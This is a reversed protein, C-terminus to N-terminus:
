QKDLVPKLVQQVFERITGEQKIGLAVLKPDPVQRGDLLDFETAFDYIDDLAEVGSPPAREITIPKGIEHAIEGIVDNLSARAHAIDFDVNNIEALKEHYLKFLATVVPGLDHGIWTYGLVGKPTLPLKVVYKDGTKVIPMLKLFNELFFGAIVRSNPLGSAQLHKSVTVKDASRGQSLAFMGEFHTVKTYKGKSVEAVSVLSSFVFFKVGEEKAADVMNEGQVVESLPTFPITVGFAVEAGSLAKKVAEKDGLDAAVVQAGRSALERAAPSSPDRTVARPVFTGDKLLADVVAVGQHGTAGFVTAIRPM